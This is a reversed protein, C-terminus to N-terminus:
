IPCAKLRENIESSLREIEANVRAQMREDPTKKPGKPRPKVAQAEELHKRLEDNAKQLNDAKKELATREADTLDAGKNAKASAVMNRLELDDGIFLKSAELAAGTESGGGKIAVDNADQDYRATELRMRAIAEANKDGSDIADNIAQTAARREAEIRHADLSLVAKEVPTAAREKKVVDEALQRGHDPNAAILEKAAALYEEHTAPEYPSPAFTDSRAQRNADVQAHTAGALYDTAKQHAEVTAPIESPAIGGEDLKADEALAQHLEQGKTAYDALPIAVQGTLEAEAHTDPTGTIAAVEVAPDKGEAMFHENVAEIPLYVTHDATAAVYDALHEPSRKGLKSEAAAQMIQDLHNANHEAEAVGPPRDTPEGGFLGGTLAGIISSATLDRGGPLGEGHLLSLVTQIAPMGIAGLAASGIKTKGAMPVAMSATTELMAAAGKAM